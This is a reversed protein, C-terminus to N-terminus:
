YKTLAVFLRGYGNDGGSVFHDEDIMAVVDMSGGASSKEKKGADPVDDMGDVVHATGRFILQSEDM